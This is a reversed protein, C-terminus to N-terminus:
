LWASQYTLSTSASAASYARPYPQGSGGAAVGVSIGTPLWSMAETARGPLTTAELLRHERPPLCWGGLGGVM